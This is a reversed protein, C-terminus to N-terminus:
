ASRGCIPGRTLAIRRAAPRNPRWTPWRAPSRRGAVPRRWTCRWGSIPSERASAGRRASYKRAESRSPGPRKSPRAALALVADVLIRTAEAPALRGSRLLEELSTGDVYELVLFEDGDEDQQVAHVTVIGPHRLKAVARAEGRLSGGRPSPSMPDRRFVKIAVSRALKVDWGQYVHGYAGRGLLRQITFDALQAPVFEELYLYKVLPFDNPFRQRFHALTPLEGNKSRYEMELVLLDRLVHQRAEPTAEGIIKEICLMEGRWHASSIPACRM